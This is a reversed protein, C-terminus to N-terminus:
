HYRQTLPFTRFVEDVAQSATQEPRALMKQTVREHTKGRWVLKRQHVDLVDVTLYGETYRDISPDQNAPRDKYYVELFPYRAAAFGKTYGTRPQLKRETAVSLSVLLDPNNSPSLGRATLERSIEAKLASKVSSNKGTDPVFGFTRYQQWSSGSATRSDSPAGSGACALLLTTALLTAILRSLSAKSSM